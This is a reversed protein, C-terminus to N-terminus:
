VRAVGIVPQEVVPEPPTPPEPIIFPAAYPAIVNQNRLNILIDAQAFAREGIAEMDPEYGNVNSSYIGQAIASAFFDRLTMGSFQGIPNAPGGDIVTTNETNIM